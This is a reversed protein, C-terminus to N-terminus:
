SPAVGTEGSSQEPGALLGSYKLLMKERDKLKKFVLLISFASVPFDGNITKCSVLSIAATRESHFSILGDIPLFPEQDSKIPAVEPLFVQSGM